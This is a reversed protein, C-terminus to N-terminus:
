KFNNNNNILDPHLMQTCPVKNNLQYGTLYWLCTLQFQNAPLSNSTWQKLSLVEELVKIRGNIGHRNSPYKYRLKGKRTKVLRSSPPHHVRWEFQLASHQDPFGYFLAVLAWPRKKATLKAGGAIEGNHQRLRRIMDNTAGVYTSNHNSLSYLVYCVWM